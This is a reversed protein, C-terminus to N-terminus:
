TVEYGPRKSWHFIAVDTKRGHGGLLAFFRVLSVPFHATNLHIDLSLPMM